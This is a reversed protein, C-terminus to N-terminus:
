PITPPTSPLGQRYRAGQLFLEAAKERSIQTVRHRPVQFVPRGDPTCLEVTVPNIDRRKGIFTIGYDDTLEVFVYDLARAPQASSQPNTTPNM